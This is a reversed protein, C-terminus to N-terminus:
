LSEIGGSAGSGGLLQGRSVVVLKACTTGCADSLAMYTDEQCIASNTEWMLLGNYQSVFCRSLHKCGRM